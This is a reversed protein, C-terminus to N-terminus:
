AVDGWTRKWLWGIGYGGIGGVLLAVWHIPHPRLYLATEGILYGGLGLGGIWLLEIFAIGQGKAKAKAQSSKTKRRKSM